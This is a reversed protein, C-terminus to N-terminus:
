LSERNNTILTPDLYKKILAILEERKRKKVTELMKKVRYKVTGVSVNEQEAIKEYIIGNLIGDLIGLDIEDLRSFLTELIYVDQAMEDQLLTNNGFEVHASKVLKMESSTTIRVHAAVSEVGPNNLLFTYLRIAQRGLEHYDLSILKAEHCLYRELPSDWFSIVHLDFDNELKKLMSGLVIAVVDNTCLVADYKKANKLFGECCERLSLDIYYVDFKGKGNEKKCDRLAQEKVIDNANERSVGLLAMNQFGREEMYAFWATYMGYFDFRLSSVGRESTLNHSALLIPHLGEECVLPILSAIWDPSRGNLIIPVRESESHASKIKKLDAPTLEILKGKYERVASRLGRMYKFNWYNESFKPETIIYFNMKQERKSKSM